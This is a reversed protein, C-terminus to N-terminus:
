RSKSASLSVPADDAPHLIAACAFRRMSHNRVLGGSLLHFKVQVIRPDAHSIRYFRKIFWRVYSLAEGQEFVRYIDQDEKSRRRTELDIQYYYTVSSPDFAYVTKIHGNSAYGALQALGGGLSHGAAIITTNDGHHRRITDILDPMLRILQEYHDWVNPVIRTIWRLNSFWDARSQTGRFALIAIKSGDDLGKVWVRYRLGDILRVGPPPVPLPPLDPDEKWGNGIPNFALKNPMACYDELATTEELESADYAAASLIAADHLLSLEPYRAPLEARHVVMKTRDRVVVQNNISGCSVAFTGLVLTTVFLVVRRPM